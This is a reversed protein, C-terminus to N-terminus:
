IRKYGRKRYERYKSYKYDIRKQIAANNFMKCLVNLRIIVDGIEDTVASRREYLEKRTKPPKTVLQTLEVSLEQMEEVAKLLNYSRPNNLVMHADISLKEKKSNNKTM